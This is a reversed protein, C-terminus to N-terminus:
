SHLFPILPSLLPITGPSISMRKMLGQLQPPLSQVNRLVENIVSPLDVCHTEGAFVGLQIAFTPAGCGLEGIISKKWDMSLKRAMVLATNTTANHTFGPLDKLGSFPKILEDLKEFSTLSNLSYNCTV